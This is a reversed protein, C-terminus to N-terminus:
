IMFIIDIKNQQMVTLRKVNVDYEYYQIM